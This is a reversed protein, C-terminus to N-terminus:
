KVVMGNPVDWRRHIWFWQEPCEAICKELQRNFSETYVRVGEDRELGEPPPEIIPGFRLAHLGDPMLRGRVFVVPAGTKLALLGLGKNTSVTSGFFKTPIGESLLARQDLLFAVMEGAKLAKLVPRVANRHSIPQSGFKARISLIRENVGENKIKRGIAHLKTDLRMAAAGMAGGCVEWNGIHGTLLFVGKGQDLAGQLEDLGEIRVRKKLKALDWSPLALFEALVRGIHKFNERIMKKRRAEDWDPFAMRANNEATFRRSPVFWYFCLGLAAGLKRVLGVPLVSVGKQLLDMIKFAAKDIFRKSM